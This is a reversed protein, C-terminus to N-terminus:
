RDVVPMGFANALVQDLGALVWGTVVYLAITGLGVFVLAVSIPPFIFMAAAALMGEGLLTAMLIYPLASRLWRIFRVLIMSAM